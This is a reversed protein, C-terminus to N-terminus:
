LNLWRSVLYMIGAFVTLFITSLLFGATWVTIWPQYVVLLIELVDASM